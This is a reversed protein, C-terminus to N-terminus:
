VSLTAAWSSPRLWRSTRGPARIQGFDMASWGDDPASELRYSYLARGKGDARDVDIRGRRHLGLRPRDFYSAHRGLAVYVHPRDGTRDVETWSRTDGKDHQAYAASAITNVNTPMVRYQMMEWDHEHGRRWPVPSWDRSYYVWYQVWTDVWSEEIDSVVRGYVVDLEGDVGQPFEKERSDFFLVPKYRELLDDIM